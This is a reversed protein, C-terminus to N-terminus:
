KPVLSRNCVPPGIGHVVSVDAKGDDYLLHHVGGSGPHEEGGIGDGAPAPACGDIRDRTVAFLEDGAGDVGIM